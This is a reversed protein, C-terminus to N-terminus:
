NFFLTPFGSIIPAPMIGSESWPYHLTECVNSDPSLVITRLGFIRLYNILSPTTQYKNNLCKRGSFIDQNVNQSFVAFSQRRLSDIETENMNWINPGKCEGPCIRYSYDPGSDRWAFADTFDGSNEIIRKINNEVDESQDFNAQGSIGEATIDNELGIQMQFANKKYKVYSFVRGHTGARFTIMQNGKGHYLKDRARTAAVFLIRAEEDYDPPDDPGSYTKEPDGIFFRVEKTERGKSAHITSLVPGSRGFEPYCVEAPPRQVALRIRLDKMSVRTSSEGGIRCMMEWAKEFSDYEFANESIREDWLEAFEKKKLTVETFDNLTIGVWPFICAPLGSMRLRHKVKTFSSARLVEAKKRFLIFCDDNNLNQAYKDNTQESNTIIEDRVANLKEIGSTGDLVKQRTDRFIRNLGPSKTRYINEINKESFAHPYKEKLVTTLIKGSYKSQERDKEAFGYIAQADDSFVSIGADEPMHDMISLILEIRPSVIDQAEDIILHRFHSHIYEAENHDENIKQTLKEITDEYAGTLSASNDFGSHLKWAHSDLTAIRISYVDDPNKLHGRIRNQIEKVATRTFSVLWINVPNVCGEDILWAVRACAVATKGTGPGADVIIKEEPSTQIIEKQNNDPFFGPIEAEEPIMTEDSTYDNKELEDDDGTKPFTNVIASDFYPKDTKTEGYGSKLPTEVCDKKASDPSGLDKRLRNFFRNLSNENPIPANHEEFIDSLSKDGNSKEMNGATPETIMTNNEFKPSKNLMKFKSSNIVNKTENLIKNMTNGIFPVKVRSTPDVKIVNDLRSLPVYNNINQKQTSKKNYPSESVNNEKIVSIKPNESTMEHPASGGFVKTKTNEVTKSENQRSVDRLSFDETFCIMGNRDLGMEPLPICEDRKNGVSKIADGFLESLKEPDRGCLILIYWANGLNLFQCKRTQNEGDIGGEIVAHATRIIDEWQRDTIMEHSYLKLIAPMRRVAASSFEELASKLDFTGSKGSFATSENSMRFFKEAENRYDTLESDDWEITLDLGMQLASSQVWALDDIFLEADMEEVYLSREPIAVFQYFTPKKTGDKRLVRGMRQILQLKSKTFAVNIGIDASKIDIGENLMDAGILIGNDASIFRNVVDIPREKIKSHIVFVNDFHKKLERGAFDCSEINMLFLVIKHDNGIKKALEISKDIRPQSKHIIQRRKLILAQLAKWQDPVSKGSYRARESLFIFDGMKKISFDKNNTIYRITPRDNRVYNFLKRIKDSIESFEAQEKIELYVPHVVWSFQPIIGDTLARLIPYEYVVKGLEKEIIVRKQSEGLHATLGMLWTHKVELAERFKIGGIHHVEDIILLDTWYNYPNRMLTQITEFTISLNGPSLGSKYSKGTEAPIGMKEIIERRWQNLIVTSHCIILVNKRKETRLSEKWVKEIAMMGVATKGTATAMEIVGYHDFEEWKSIAENQHEWPILMLKPQTAIQMATKPDTNSIIEMLDFLFDRNKIIFFLELFFLGSGPDFINGTHDVIDPRPCNKKEGPPANKYLNIITKKLLTNIIGIDASYQRQEQTLSLGSILNTITLHFNEFLEKTDTYYDPDDIVPNFFSESEIRSELLRFFITSYWDRLKRHEERFDLGLLPVFRHDHQKYYSYQLLADDAWFFGSYPDELYINAFEDFNPM